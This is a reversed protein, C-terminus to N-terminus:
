KALGDDNPLSVVICLRIFNMFFMRFNLWSESVANFMNKQLRFINLETDSAIFSLFHQYKNFRFSNFCVTIALSESIIFRNPTRHKWQQLSELPFVKMADVIMAILALLVLGCKEVEAILLGYLKCNWNVVFYNCNRKFSM